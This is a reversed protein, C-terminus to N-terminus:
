SGPRKHWIIQLQHAVDWTGTIDGEELGLEVAVFKVLNLSGGGAVRQEKTAYVGDYAFHVLL